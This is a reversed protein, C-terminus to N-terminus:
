TPPCYMWAQKHPQTSYLAVRVRAEQHGVALPLLVTVLSALFVIDSATLAALGLVGVGPRPRGLGKIAEVAWVGISVPVRRM